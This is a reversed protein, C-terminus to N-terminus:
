RNGDLLRLAAQLYQLDIAQALDARQPIHGQAAWMEQDAELSAVNVAADPHMGTPMMAEYISLDKIPTHDALIQFIPTKDGNGQLVVNYYDRAGRVYAALFRVAAEPERRTFEPSYLMVTIQHHPYLEEAGKWRVGTGNQRTRTVFPETMLAADIASNGLAVVMDPFSLLTTQVDAEALGGRELARYFYPSLASTLSPAAIKLGRLDAYDRVRGSDILDKRVVLASSAANPLSQTQGGVIKLPLGRAIASFMGASVGGAGVDIQGTALAPIMKEGTDFIEFALEIGEERFYGRSNAVYIGGNAATPVDGIRITVPPSLPARAAPAPATSAVPAASAPAAAPADAAPAPRPAAPAAGGASSCALLILSLLAPWFALATRM